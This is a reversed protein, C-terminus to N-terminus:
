GCHCKAQQASVRQFLDPFGRNVGLVERTEFRIKAESGVELPTSTRVFLGGESLDGMRAFFTVNEGECWCRLRAEARGTKRNERM